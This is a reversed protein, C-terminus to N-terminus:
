KWILLNNADMGVNDASGDGEQQPTGHEPGDILGAAYKLRNLNAKGDGLITNELKKLMKNAALDFRKHWFGDTLKTDQLPIGRLKTYSSQSNDIVPKHSCPNENQDCGITNLLVLYLLSKYFNYLEKMIITETM